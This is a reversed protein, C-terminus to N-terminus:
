LANINTVHCYLEYRKFIKKRNIFQKDTFLITQQVKSSGYYKNFSKYNLTINLVLDNKTLNTMFKHEKKPSNSINDTHIDDNVLKNNFKKWYRWLLMCIILPYKMVKTKYGIFLIRKMEDYNKKIYQRYYGYYCLVISDTTNIM